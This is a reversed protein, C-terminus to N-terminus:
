YQELQLDGVVLVIFDFDRVVPVIFGFGRVCLWISVEREVGVWFRQTFQPAGTLFKKRV